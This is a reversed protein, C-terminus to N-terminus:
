DQTPIKFGRFLMKQEHDKLRFRAQQAKAFAEALLWHNGTIGVLALIGETEKHLSRAEFSLTKHKNIADFEEVFKANEEIEARKAKALLIDERHRRRQRLQEPTM